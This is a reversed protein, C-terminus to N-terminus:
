ELVWGSLLALISQSLCCAMMFDMSNEQTLSCFCVGKSWVTHLLNILFMLLFVPRWSLYVVHFSYCLLLGWPQQGYDSDLAHHEQWLPLHLRLNGFPSCCSSCDWLAVRCHDSWLWSESGHAVKWPFRFVQTWSSKGSALCIHGSFM